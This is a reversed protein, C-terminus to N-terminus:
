EGEKVIQLMEEFSNTEGIVEVELGEEAEIEDPFKEIMFKYKLDGESKMEASDLDIFWVKINGKENTYSPALDNVYCSDQFGNEILNDINCNLNYKKDNHWTVLSNEMEM